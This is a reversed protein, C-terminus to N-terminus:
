WSYFQRQATVPRNPLQVWVKKKKLKEDREEHLRIRTKEEKLVLSLSTTRNKMINVNGRARYDYDPTWDGKGCWAEDVYLTTPDEVKVRKRDKTVIYRTKFNETSTRAVKGLGMGRKLIAENKAHELHEKVDKAAKKKSFRMQIIADEVTKGAIQKALPVLKKVSTKFDHSRSLLVRETRKLTQEKTLRGRKRVEQIVKKRKWAITARPNADLARAMIKPSRPVIKNEEGGQRHRTNDDKFISAPTIDGREPQQQRQTDSRKKLYEETLPNKSAKSPTLMRKADDLRKSFNDWLSRRQNTYLPVLVAIPPHSTTLVAASRLLRRSPLNLSM